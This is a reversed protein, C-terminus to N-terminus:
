SARGMEREWEAVDAAAQTDLDANRKLWVREWIVVAITGVVLFMAFGAVIAIVIEPWTFTAVIAAGLLAGCISTSM